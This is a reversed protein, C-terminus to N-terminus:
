QSRGLSKVNSMFSYIRKPDKRIGDPACIGSSVDVGNPKLAYIAECVNDAHLGGALLWGNKSRVSPMQFKQWNFGKGSGGKASDVLFWDIEYKEDPPANILKGDDDANLVYVIHNNKSLVPLVLRSKDGHLQVLNLDCSDSVRSITEEDDDVFVGVSEAGYSQAVRSIEKAESLAVSRKSNPWLIMGILKAGAELATEADKASTIGCMKVVPQIIKNSGCNPLSSVVTDSALGHNVALCSTKFLPFKSNGNFSLSSLRQPQRAVTISPAM